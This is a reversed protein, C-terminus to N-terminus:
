GASRVVLVPRRAEHLLRRSVSGLLRSRVAGLGRSGVVVAAADHAEAIGDITAGIDSVDAVALARADAGLERALAAGAEAAQAAHQREISDVTAVQQPSPVPYASGSIDPTSITAMAIGPEWVSVVLLQRGAFLDTAARLAGESEPSGDFAVVVPRAATGM